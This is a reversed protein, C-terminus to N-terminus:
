TYRDLVCFNSIRGNINSGTARVVLEPERSSTQVGPPYVRHQHHEEQPYTASHSHHFHNQQRRAVPTSNPQHHCRMPRSRSNQRHILKVGSQENTKSAAQQHGRTLHTDSHPAATLASIEHTSSATTYRQMGNMMTQLPTGPQQNDELCNRIQEWMDNIENDTPTKDLSKTSSSPAKATSPAEKVTAPPGVSTPPMREHKALSGDNVKLSSSPENTAREVERNSKKVEKQSNEEDKGDLHSTHQPSPSELPAVPVRVTIGNLTSPSGTRKSPANAAPPVTSAKSLSVRMKPTFASNPVHNQLVRNWVSGSHPAHSGQSHGLDVKDILFRVKKQMKSASSANSVQSGSSRSREMQVAGTSSGPQCSDVSSSSTKKLIGVIKTKSETLTTEAVESKSSSQAESEAKASQTVESGKDNVSHSAGSSPSGVQLQHQKRSRHAASYSGVENLSDTDHDDSDSSKCVYIPQSSPPPAPSPSPTHATAPVGMVKLLSHQGNQLTEGSGPRKQSFTQLRRRTAQENQQRSARLQRAVSAVAYRAAPQDLSDNLPPSLSRDSSSTSSNAPEPSLVRTGDDCQVMRSTPTTYQRAGGVNFVPKFVMLEDSASSSTEVEEVKLKTAELESNVTGNQRHKDAFHSKATAQSRRSLTNLNSDSASRGRLLFANAKEGEGNTTAAQQQGATSGVPQHIMIRGHAQTLPPHGNPPTSKDVGVCSFPICQLYARCRSTSDLLLVNFATLTNVVAHLM